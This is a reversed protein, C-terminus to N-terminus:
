ILTRLKALVENTIEPSAKIIFRARRSRWDLSKVQDCLVAGSIKAQNGLIVEFPYGKIKSTIPCLLALGALGNYNKPSIVLGPRLGSQEHGSQPAFNLWVIDGREPTYPKAVSKIRVM